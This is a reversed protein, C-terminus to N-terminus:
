LNSFGSKNIDRYFGKLYSKVQRKTKADLYTRTDILHYVAAEKSKFTDVAEALEAASYGTGMWVREQVTSSSHKEFEIFPHPLFIPKPIRGPPGSGLGNAFNPDNTALISRGSHRDYGSPLAPPM